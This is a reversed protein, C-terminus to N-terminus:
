SAAARPREEVLHLTRPPYAIQAGHAAVIDAIKLLVDEKVTHYKAYDTTHTFAYIFFDCSSASFANFNVILTQNEEIEPHEALMRKVEGVIARMHTLDEYRVSITEHIRRHLMRSPNEISITAFTSNPVYLPRKDFTRITTIRWGIEEVTGEINKDPSRIWDGVRFPKDMYLMMAGFFNALLDRAAFGIAIGGIGGFALVGSISVGMTQLGILIASIVVSAVAIKGMARVTTEDVQRGAEFRSRLYHHEFRRIFRIVGWAVVWVVLASRLDDVGSFIEARTERYLVNVAYGIGQIWILIRVPQRATDVAMDDWVSKTRELRRHLRDLVVSVFYSALLTALVIIFVQVMWGAEKQLEFTQMLYNTVRDITTM